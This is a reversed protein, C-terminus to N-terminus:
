KGFIAPTGCTSPCPLILDYVQPVLSDHFPSLAPSLYMHSSTSDASTLQFPLLAMTARIGKAEPFKCFIAELDDHHIYYSHALGATNSFPLDTFDRPLRNNAKNYLEAYFRITDADNESISIPNFLITNGLLNFYQPLMRQWLRYHDVNIQASATNVLTSHLTATDCHHIVSTRRVEILYPRGDDADGYIQGSENSNSHLDEQDTTKKTSDVLGDAGVAFVSGFAFIILSKIYNTKM